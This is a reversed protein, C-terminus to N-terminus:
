CRVLILLDDRFNRMIRLDDDLFQVQTWGGPGSSLPVTINAGGLLLKVGDFFYSVRTSSLVDVPASATLGLRCRV